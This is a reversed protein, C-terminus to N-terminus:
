TRLMAKVQAPTLDRDGFLLRTQGATRGAPDPGEWVLSLGAAVAVARSAANYALVSAAVPLGPRVSAAADRATRALETAYGHGQQEPQFRYYLNWVADNQVSCGGTGAFSGDRLWATWYGLGDRDWAARHRAVALATQRRSRYGPPRWATGM